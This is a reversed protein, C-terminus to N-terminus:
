AAVRGYDARDFARQRGDCVASRRRSCSASRPRCRRAARRPSGSRRPSSITAANCTSAAIRRRMGGRSPSSATGPRAHARAMASASRAAAPDHRLPHQADCQEGPLHRRDAADRCEACLEAPHQRRRRRTPRPLSQSRMYSVLSAATTGGVSYRQTQTSTRVEALRASAFAGAVIAGLAGRGAARRLRSLHPNDVAEGWAGSACDLRLSRM